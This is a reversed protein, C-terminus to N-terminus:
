HRMAQTSPSAQETALWAELRSSSDALAAELSRERAVDRTAAGYKRVADILCNALLKRLWAALETESRWQYRHLAQYAKLLTEQVVDSPDLKGQLRRDLNLRALLRLYARYRELSQGGSPVEDAM